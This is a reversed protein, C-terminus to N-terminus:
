KRRKEDDHQTAYEHIWYMNRALSCISKKTRKKQNLSFTYAILTAELINHHSGLLKYTWLFSYSKIVLSRIGQHIQAYVERADTWFM